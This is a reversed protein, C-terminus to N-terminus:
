LQNECSKVLTLPWQPLCGQQRQSVDKVVPVYVQVRMGSSEAKDLQSLVSSAAHSALFHCQNTFLYESASHTINNSQVLCIQSMIQRWYIWSNKSFCMEAAAPRVTNAQMIRESTKRVVESGKRGKV